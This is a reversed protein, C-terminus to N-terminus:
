ATASVTGSTVAGVGIQQLDSQISTYAQQAASLNGAQLAQGLQNIDNQVANTEGSGGHHHHHHVRAKGNQIAKMIETFDDQAGSLNGSQLDHGLQGFIQSVSSSSQSASTDGQTKQLQAYDAKAATLNGAQLDQGLQQFEQRFQQLSTQKPSLSNLLFNSSIAAISMAVRRQLNSLLHTVLRDFLYIISEGICFFNFSFSIPFSSGCVEALRASYVRM